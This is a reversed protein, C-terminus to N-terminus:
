NNSGSQVTATPLHSDILLPWNFFLSSLHLDFYSTIFHNVIFLYLELANILKKTCKCDLILDINMPM